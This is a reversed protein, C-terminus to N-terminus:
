RLSELTTRAIPAQLPDFLPNLSVAQKLYDRAAKTDGAAKAIMGAHYFLKADRTNLKLAEKIATQAETIKGAKLATWALADAGYIDQRQEYELQAQRYAEEPKLDHDAYFLAIQRNYLTGSLKSLTGIQEILAYQAQAEKERGALKYLDGLASVMTPDPLIRTAKEYNEIAGNLDDKAARVRGLSALARYYNPFTTLADQYQKEATEYDGAAFYVEGLQWRSWAVTERSPISSNQAFIIANSFRRKAEDLDGRLIAERALRSEMGQGEANRKEATRLIATAKDYDGLEQVADAFLFLPYSKKPDLTMLQEAHDRAASFEHSAFEVQTLAALGGVNEAAPLVELSAKAARDALLLYDLSGTERVKLLYYGALKNFAIFDEKDKKVRDELFRITQETADADAPITTAAPLTPPASSNSSSTRCGNFVFALIVLLILPLTKSWLNKM